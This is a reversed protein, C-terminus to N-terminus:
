GAALHWGLHCGVMLNATLQPSPLCWIQVRSQLVVTLCAVVSGGHRGFAVMGGMLWWAEWSGGHRGLAVMGGMLWWAEWSGGHRGKKIKKKKKNKNKKQAKTEM